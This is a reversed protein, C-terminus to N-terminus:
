KQLNKRHAQRYHKIAFKHAQNRMNQILLSVSDDKRLKLSAQKKPIFIEEERKALAIIKAQWSKKLAPLVTNLQPKGGDLIILNPEPWENHKQRRSLVQRMSEVDNPTSLNKIKFIRYESAAIQGDQFVIMSGYSFQGQMNSIDYVEIRQPLYKLALLDQLKTLIDLKPNHINKQLHDEANNKLLKLLQKKKGRQPVIIKIKHNAINKATLKVPTVIENILESQQSYFQQLTSELINKDTFALKNNVVFNFKDGLVGNRVQMLTIVAKEQFHVLNILDHNINILDIIKQKDQLRQLARFQNRKKAATEFKKNKAALEIEQKLDIKLNKTKGKIIRIAQKIIQQYDESAILKECPGDCLGMHYQLCIKGKPLKSLDRQCTRLPLIKHLLRVITKATMTSTYPGFHQGKIKQRGHSVVIRPFVQDTIVIYGWSKDDKLVINYKPQYKKIQGAELLLSETETDVITYQIKKVEQIMQIKAMTLESTKQWYSAVRKKLDKAKGIYIIEKKNNLFFYIGPKAPIHKINAPTM